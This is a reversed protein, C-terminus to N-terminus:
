RQLQQQREQQRRESRSKSLSSRCCCGSRRFSCSRSRVLKALAPLQAVVRALRVHVTLWGASRRASCLRRTGHVGESSKVQKLLAKAEENNEFHDRVQLATSCVCVCVCATAKTIACVACVALAARHLAVCAYHMRGCRRWPQCRCLWLAAREGAAPDPQAAQGARAQPGCPAAGRERLGSGSGCVRHLVQLLQQTQCRSTLTTSIPTPPPM